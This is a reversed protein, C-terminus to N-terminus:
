LGIGNEYLITKNSQNHDQSRRATALDQICWDMKNCAIENWKLNNEFDELLQKEEVQYRECVESLPIKLSLSIGPISKVM